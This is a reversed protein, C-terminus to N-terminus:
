KLSGLMNTIAIGVIILRFSQTGQRFAFLFIIFATALGGILAGAAIALFSFSKIVLMVILVGTYSGTSFGLIDPSGLPNRTISQFISGSVALGAGFFVAGLIRPLRWEMVITQEFGTLKGSFIAAIAAMSLRMTGTTLAFVALILVAVWFLATVILNRVDLRTAVPRKLRM